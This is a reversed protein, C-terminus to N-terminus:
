IRRTYWAEEQQDGVQTTTPQSASTNNHQKIEQYMDVWPMLVHQEDDVDNDYSTYAFYGRWQSDKYMYEKQYKLLDRWGVAKEMILVIQAWQIFLTIELGENSWV